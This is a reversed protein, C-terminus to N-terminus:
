RSKTLQHPADLQTAVRHFVHAPTLGNIVAVVQPLGEVVFWMCVLLMVGVLTWKVCERAVYTLERLLVPGLRRMVDEM